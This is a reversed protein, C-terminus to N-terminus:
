GKDEPLEALWYDQRCDGCEQICGKPPNYGTDLDCPNIDIVGNCMSVNPFAKLFESQRTKVLHEAAWKEVIAVAKDPYAVEFGKCRIGTTPEQMYFPCINCSINCHEEKDSKLMRQKAKLYEVADM